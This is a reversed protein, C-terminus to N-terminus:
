DVAAKRPRETRAVAIAQETEQRALTERDPAVALVTGVAENVSALAAGTRCQFAEMLSRALLTNKEAQAHAVDQLADNLRSVIEGLQHHYGAFLGILGDASRPNGITNMSKLVEDNLAGITRLNLEAISQWQQAVPVAWAHLATIGSEWASIVGESNRVNM